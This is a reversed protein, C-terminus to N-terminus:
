EGMTIQEQQLEVEQETQADVEQSGTVMTHVDVPDLIEVVVKNTCTEGEVTDTIIIRKPELKEKTDSLVLERPPSSLQLEANHSAHDPPLNAPMILQTKERPKQCLKSKKHEIYATLDTFSEKCRGCVHIDLEDDPLIAFFLKSQFKDYDKEKKQM